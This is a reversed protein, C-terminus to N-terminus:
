RCNSYLTNGIANSTCSISRNRQQHESFGKAFAVAPHVYEPNPKCTRTAVRGEIFGIFCLDKGSAFSLTKIDGGDVFGTPEGLEQRVYEETDGMSIREQVLNGM